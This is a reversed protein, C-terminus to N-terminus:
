KVIVVSNNWNYKVKAYGPNVVKIIHDYLYDHKNESSMLSRSYLYESVDYISYKKIDGYVYSGDELKVYARVKYEASFERATESSFLMTRVYFKRNDTVPRIPNTYGKQTTVYTKVYNSYSNVTMADDSALNGLGDLKALGYVLGCEVVKKDAVVEPVSAITRSGKLTTSIQFGEVMIQDSYAVGNKYQTPNEVAKTTPAQTIKQTTPAQTTPKQTTPKQTTPAQTTPKQTTVVVKTTPAQANRAAWESDYEKMSVNYVEIDSAECGVNDVYGLMLGFLVNNTTVNSQFVVDITETGGANIMKSERKYVTWDTDNQIMLEVKRAKSSKVTITGRYWAGSKIQVGEQKFQSAYYNGSYYAPVSAKFTGNGQYSINNVDNSMWNNGSNFATNALVETGNAITLKTTPPQTVQQTQQQDGGKKMEEKIVKLLSYENFADQGLEWMMIGGYNKSYQTKSRITPRGNYYVGNAYDMDAYAANAQVMEAYTKAAGGAAYGYFPVGIVMRDNSVGRSSYYNVNDYIQSMPAVDGTGQQNYDYTMLNLFDFYNYTSNKIGGTFWPAVAITLIKGNQKLRGSLESVFADFNNWVNADEVELDLDVGDLNLRNVYNMVNNIFTTRKQATGFPNDSTDFGGWGGIAIIAKVNNQHCKTVIRQADYDSFGSSLVGNSYTMFSLNVHTLASYDVSDIAYTRYSPFYGVVRNNTAAKVEKTKTAFGTTGFATVVMCLALVFSIIKKISTKM